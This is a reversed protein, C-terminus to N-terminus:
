RIYIQLDREKECVCACVREKEWVCVCEREKGVCVCERKEWACVRAGKVEEAWITCGRM